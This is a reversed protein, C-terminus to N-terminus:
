TMVIPWHAVPVCFNLAVPLDAASSLKDGLLLRHEFLITTEDLCIHGRSAVPSRVHKWRGDELVFEPGDFQTLKKFTGKIPPLDEGAGGLTWWVKDGMAFPSPCAVDTPHPDPPVPLPPPPPLNAPWDIVEPM